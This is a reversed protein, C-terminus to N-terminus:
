AVFFMYRTRLRAVSKKQVIAFCPSARPAAKQKPCPTAGRPKIITQMNRGKGWPPVVRAMVEMQALRVGDNAAISIQKAALRGCANIYTKDRTLDRRTMEM